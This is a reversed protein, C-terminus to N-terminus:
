KPVEKHTYYKKHPPPNRLVYIFASVLVVVSYVVRRPGIPPIEGVASIPNFRSALGVFGGWDQLTSVTAPCM